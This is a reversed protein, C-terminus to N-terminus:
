IQNKDNSMQFKDNVCKQLRREVLYFPLQGGDLLTDHFTKLTLRSSFQERLGIIEHNGMFYCLQYGPTLAFRRVQRQARQASFGLKEIEAAAHAVTMRGTQLEIDLLARLNRWLQRKLLVLQKRPDQVYRLEDLLQEAYSAWGEYFLPSEIQRRISNAHHIRLHDLIHHGPYTEHACLYPCHGSILRLDEKGPTIYFIGPSKTNGTSPARYSATARLSQLYSPTQLVAVEEGPPFTIIDQSYFFRRLNEVERQYLQMVEEPSSLSPFGEYIIHKWSKRSDIKGACERIKEQTERYAYQAIERIEEPSKPYGLSIDIIKKLGDGGIAFSKRSPLQLLERKYGEWAEAVKQNRKLLEGDNGVKEEVYARIDRSHFHLADQVMNLAVQLSIESPTHLNKAALDLFPPIQAFLTLLDRKVGEPTTDRQSLVQDTAFLPIKIFLSPDNRWGEAHAFERVFSEMSQRLLLRDIEGEVDGRGEPPIEDLLGQVYRIHDRIKGPTLDDLSNVHELAAESRPLFYFEDSLCQQPFHGGIYSFYDSAILDLPRKM